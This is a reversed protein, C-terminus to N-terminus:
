ASVKNRELVWKDVLFNQHLDKEPSFESHITSKPFWINRGHGVAILLARETEKKIEGNITTTGNYSTTSRKTSRKQTNNELVSKKQPHNGNVIVEEQIYFKSEQEQSSENKQSSANEQSNEESGNTQSMESVTAFEIKEHLIHTLLLRLLESQAANLMKSYTGMKVWLTTNANKESEPQWNISISTSTGRFKHVTSWTDLKHDLVQLISILEELSFKITKGEGKSLKEWKGNTIKKLFKFFVFPSSKASSQVIMGTKQGFFSYNHTDSM